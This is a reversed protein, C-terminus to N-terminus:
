VHARGIEGLSFFGYDNCAAGREHEPLFVTAGALREGTAADSVYGSVTINQQSFAQLFLFLSLLIGWFHKIYHKFAM